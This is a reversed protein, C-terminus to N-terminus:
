THQARGRRCASPPSLSTPNPTLTPEPRGSPPSSVWCGRAVCWPAWAHRAARPEACGAVVRMSDRNLGCSTDTSPHVQGLQWRTRSDRCSSCSSPMFTPEWFHFVRCAADVGFWPPASRCWPCAATLTGRCPRPRPRQPASPWSVGARGGVCFYCTAFASECSDSARHTCPAHCPPVSRPPGRSTSVWLL